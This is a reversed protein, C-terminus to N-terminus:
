ARALGGRVRGCSRVIPAHTALGVRRALADLYLHFFKEADQRQGNYISPSCLDTVSPEFAVHFLFTGFLKKFRMKEKMADYLDTPEFSDAIKTRKWRKM